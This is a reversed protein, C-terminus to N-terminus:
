DKLSERQREPRGPSRGAGSEWQGRGQGNLGESVKGRHCRSEACREKSSCEGGGMKEPHFNSLDEFSLQATEQLPKEGPGVAGWGM